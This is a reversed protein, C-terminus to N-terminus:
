RVCRTRRPRVARAKVRVPEPAFLWQAVWGIVTPLALRVLSFLVQWM